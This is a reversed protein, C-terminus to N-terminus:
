SEHRSSFRKVIAGGELESSRSAFLDSLLRHLFESITGTLAGNRLDDAFHARFRASFADHVDFDQAPNLLPNQCALCFLGHGRRDARSVNPTMETM